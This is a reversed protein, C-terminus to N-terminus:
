VWCGDDPEIGTADCLEVRRLPLDLSCASKRACAEKLEGADKARRIPTTDDEDRGSCTRCCLVVEKDDDDDDLRGSCFWFAPSKFALKDSCDVYM